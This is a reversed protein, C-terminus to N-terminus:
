NFINIFIELLKNLVKKALILIRSSLTKKDIM